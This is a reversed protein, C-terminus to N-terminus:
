PWLETQEPKMELAVDPFIDIYVKFHKEQESKKSLTDM